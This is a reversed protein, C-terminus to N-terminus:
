GNFRVSVTAFVRPDQVWSAVIQGLTGPAVSVTLTLPAQWQGGGSPVAISTAGLLLGTNTLAQVQITGQSLGSATGVVTFDRPLPTNPLPNTITISAGTSQQGYTVNARVSPVNSQPSRAIVFGTTGLPIGSTNLTVSWTGPGGAGVNPGQLTTAQTIVPTNPNANTFVDVVVTGEFLGAGAGSATWTPPLVAGNTPFTMTLYLQPPIPTPTPTTTGVPVVLRQGVFIRSPYPIGNTSALYSVTTCFRRAISFLTDGAVVTYVNGNLPGMAHSIPGLNCGGPPPTPPQGGCQAPVQLVTGPRLVNPNPGIVARNIHYIQQWTTCFQRAISSLTDGPRVVYTVTQQSGSAAAPAAWTGILVAVILVASIWRKM